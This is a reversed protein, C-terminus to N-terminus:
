ADGRGSRKLLAQGAPTVKVILESGGGHECAVFGHDLTDEWISLRPCSTRWADMAEAYTRPGKAIWEVLDLVLAKNEIDLAPGENFSV